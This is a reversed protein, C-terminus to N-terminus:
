GETYPYLVEDYCAGDALEDCSAGGVCRRHDDFRRLLTKDDDDRYATLERACSEECEARRVEGTLACREFKGCLQGCTPPCGALTGLAVLGFLARWVPVRRASRRGGGRQRLAAM